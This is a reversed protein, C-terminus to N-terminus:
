IGLLERVRGELQANVLYYKGVKFMVEGVSGALGKRIAMELDTDKYTNVARVFTTKKKELWQKTTTRGPITVHLIPLDRYLDQYKESWAFKYRNTPFFIYPNGYFDAWGSQPTTSIGDRVKWGFKDKFIKNLFRHYEVPTNRPIRVATRGKKELFWENGKVGRYLFKGTKRYVDSIKSAEQIIEEIFPKLNEWAVPDPSRFLTADNLYKELRM